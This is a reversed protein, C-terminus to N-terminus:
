GRRAEWLRVLGKLDRNVLLTLAAAKCWEYAFQLWARAGLKEMRIVRAFNRVHYFRSIPTSSLFRKGGVTFRDKNFQKQLCVDRIYLFQMKRSVRFGYHIDDWSLFFGADPLGVEDVVDRHCFFGEFNAANCPVADAHAFVRAYTLRSRRFSKPHVFGEHEFVRGNADLKAPQLARAGTRGAASLLRDLGDPLPMVDDDMLWMWEYGLEHARKMGAAFGGAGGVNEPLSLVSVGSQTALWAGTGDTSANDVVLVDAGAANAKAAALCVKLCELRNFTVVILCVSKM